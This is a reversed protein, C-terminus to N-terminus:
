NVEPAPADFRVLIPEDPVLREALDAFRMGGGQPPPQHEDLSVLLQHGEGRYQWDLKGGAPEVALNVNHWGEGPLDNARLRYLRGPVFLPRVKELLRRLLKLFEGRGAADPVGAMFVNPLRFGSRKTDYAVGGEGLDRGVAVGGQTGLRTLESAILGCEPCYDLPGGEEPSPTYPRGCGRCDRQRAM